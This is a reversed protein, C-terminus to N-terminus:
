LTRMKIDIHDTLNDQTLRLFLPEVLHLMYRKFDGYAATRKLMTNLYSTLSLAVEYDLLGSKALNFADDLIQARNIVHIATHNRQLQKAILKWNKKDYNVRYFGTQQVNFIVPQEGEPM